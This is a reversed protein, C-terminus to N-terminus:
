KMTLEIAHAICPITEGQQFSLPSLLAGTAILLVRNYEGAMMKSFVDTFYTAASCGSGSAGSLFLPDDGYFEAGADRFNNFVHLVEKKALVKYIEFGVKGLDGTIIADYSTTKKGHGELHRKLTDAAAPAMAAGMNLPDTLGLDIARGITACEISPFGKKYPTVAAVGAATVTWQSTEPKQSGYEIPYRFQREIANHQSSSGALSCEAMGVETLLAAIILSSVSTACASFLGIYPIGMSAASFSSPTMQNVLDGVLLFDVDNPTLNLKELVTLCADELMEAHAKEDTDMDCREDEYIRDFLPALVSKKELPGATVGTAVISPTSTFTLIGRTVM